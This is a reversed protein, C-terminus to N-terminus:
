TVFDVHIKAYNKGSASMNLSMESQYYLYGICQTGWQTNSGGCFSNVPHRPRVNMTAVVDSTETSFTGDTKQVVLDGFYHDGQRYIYGSTLAYGSKMTIVDSTVDASYSSFLRWSGFSYVGSGNSSVYQRYFNPESTQQLDRILSNWNGATSFYGYVSRVTLVFPTSVPCNSLSSAVSASTCVYVGPITLTKLDTGSTIKNREDNLSLTYRWNNDVQKKLTTFKVDLLANGRNIVKKLSDSLSKAGLVDLYKKAM